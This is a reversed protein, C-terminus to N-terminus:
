PCISDPEAFPRSIIQVSPHGRWFCSLHCVVFSRAFSFTTQKSCFVCAACAIFPYPMQYTMSEARLMQGILYLLQNKKKSELELRSLHPGVAQYISIAMSQLLFLCCM